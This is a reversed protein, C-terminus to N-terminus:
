AAREGLRSAAERNIINKAPDTAVVTAVILGRKRKAPAVILIAGLERRPHSVGREAPSGSPAFM